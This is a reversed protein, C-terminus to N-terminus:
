PGIPVTSEAVGPLLSYPVWVLCFRAPNRESNTFVCFALGGSKNWLRQARRDFVFRDILTTGQAVCLACLLKTISVFM